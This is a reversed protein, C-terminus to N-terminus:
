RPIVIQETQFVPSATAEDRELGISIIELNGTSTSPQNNQLDSLHQLVEEVDDVTSETIDSGLSIADLSNSVAQLPNSLLNM